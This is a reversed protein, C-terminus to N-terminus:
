LAFAREVFWYAAIIAVLTSGAHLIWRPYGTWRRLVFLIPFVVIVILVQGLEVGINFNLVVTVLDEMRFPLHGMVSAFGLGHFLGFLFIILWSKKDFFPWINNIGMVVISLAIISEVLRSPLQIIDLAALSLTASHALTFVTVIKVINWLARRFTPVPKWSKRDHLLVSPFLLAILFLVHDIGGLIHIVGQKIFDSMPLLSPIETLDIEQETTSSSFVLATHEPGLTQDSKVNTEICFLGRHRPDNEYLMTHEVQLIDPVGNTATIFHYAAYRGQPVDIVDTATFRLPLASGNDAMSFHQNIYTRVPKRHAWIWSRANEQDPTLNLKEELDLFSIEVRGEISNSQVNIFVYNEGIAHGLTPTVMAPLILHLLAALLILPRRNAKVRRSNDSAITPPLFSKIRWPPLFGQSSNAGNNLNTM